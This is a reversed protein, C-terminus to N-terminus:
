RPGDDLGRGRESATEASGRRDLLASTPTLPPATLRDDELLAHYLAEAVARAVPRDADQLLCDRLATRVQRRHEVPRQRLVDLAAAVGICTLTDFSERRVHYDADNLGLVVSRLVKAGCARLGFAAAARAAVSGSELLLECVSLEGRGGGYRCLYLCLAKLVNTPLLAASLVSVLATFCANPEEAMCYTVAEPEAHFSDLPLLHDGVREAEVSACCGRRVVEALARVCLLATDEEVAGQTAILRGLVQVVEHLLVSAETDRADTETDHADAEACAERVDVEALQVACWHHVQPPQQPDQLLRLLARVGGQRQQALCWVLTASQLLLPPSSATASTRHTLRRVFVDVVATPDATVPGLRALGVCAAHRLRWQPSQLLELFAAALSAACSETTTRSAGANRCVTGAAIAAAVAVAEEPDTRSAADCADTAAPAEGGAGSGAAAATPRRMTATFRRQLTRVCRLFFDSVPQVVHVRAEPPLASLSMLAQEQVLPAASRALLLKVLASEVAFLLDKEEAFFDLMSFPLRPRRRLLQAAGVATDTALVTHVDRRLETITPGYLRLAAPSLAAGLVCLNLADDLLVMVHPQVRTVRFRDSRLFGLLERRALEADVLVHTRRYPPPSQLHLLHSRTPAATTATPSLLLPDRSWLPRLEALGSTDVEPLPVSVLAYPTAATHAVGSDGTRHMAGAPVCLVSTHGIMDFSFTSLAYAAAVLIHPAETQQQVVRTLVKLGDAGGCTRIALGVLRVDCVSQPTPPPLTLLLQVLAPLLAAAVGGLGVVACLADDNAASERSRQRKAAEVAEEEEGGGGMVDRRLSARVRTARDRGRSASTNGCLERTSQAAAVMAEVRARMWPVVVYELAGPANLLLSLALGDVVVSETAADDDDDDRMEDTDSGVAAADGGADARASWAEGMAALEKLLRHSGAAGVRALYGLFPVADAYAAPFLHAASCSGDGDVAASERHEAEVGGDAVSTTTAADRGVSSTETDGTAQAGSGGHPTCMRGAPAGAAQVLRGAATYFAILEGSPPASSLREQLPASSGSAAADRPPTQAPNSGRAAAAAAAALIASEVSEGGRGPSAVLPSNSLSPLTTAAAGASTPAPADGGALRRSSSGHSVHPSTTGAGGGSVPSTRVREHLALSTRRGWAPAGHTSTMASSSATAAVSDHVALADDADFFIELAASTRAPAVAAGGSALSPKVVPSPVSGRSTARYRQWRAEEEEEAAAVAAASTTGGAVYPHLRSNLQPTVLPTGAGTRADFPPPPPGRWRSRPTSSRPLSAGLAPGKASGRDDGVGQMARRGPSGSPTPARPPAYAHPPPPASASDRGHVDSPPLPSSSLSSSSAVNPATATATAAPEDSSHVRRHQRWVGRVASSERSPSRPPSPQAAGRTRREHAVAAEVRIPQESSSRPRPRRDVSDPVPHTIGEARLVDLQRLVAYARSLGTTAM